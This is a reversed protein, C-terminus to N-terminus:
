SVVEPASMSKAAAGAGRHRGRPPIGAGQRRPRAFPSAFATAFRSAFATAFGPRPHVGPSM